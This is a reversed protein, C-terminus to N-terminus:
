CHARAGPWSRPPAARWRRLAIARFTTHLVSRKARPAPPSVAPWPKARRSPWRTCWSTWHAGTGGLPEFTADIQEDLQVDLPMLLQSGISAALPEVRERLKDNAYTFALEAGQARMARAIGWAISRDTAVGVILARKGSLIGVSGFHVRRARLQALARIRDSDTGPHISHDGSMGNWGVLEVVTVQLLRAISYLTDGRRVTYVVRRGGDSAAVMTGSAHSSHASRAPM